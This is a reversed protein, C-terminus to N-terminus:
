FTSKLLLQKIHPSDTLDSPVENDDFSKANVNAGNKLLLEIIEINDNMVACHLPTYGMDDCLNINAGFEEILLKTIQIKNNDVAFGLFTTGNENQANINISNNSIYKRIDDIINDGDDIM